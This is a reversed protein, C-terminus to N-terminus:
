GCADLGWVNGEKLFWGELGAKNKTKVWWETRELDIQESVKRGSYPNWFDEPGEYEDGKYWVKYYGEGLYHLVYLTDGPYVIKNKGKYLRDLKLTDLMAWKGTSVTLVYGTEAVFEEDKNITFLEASKQDPRSFVTIEKTATWKGYQCCEFPCVGENVYPLSPSNQAKVPLASHTLLLIIIIRVQKGM